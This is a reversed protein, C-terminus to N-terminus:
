AHIGSRLGYNLQSYGVKAHRASLFRWLRQYRREVIVEILEAAERAGRADISEGLPM